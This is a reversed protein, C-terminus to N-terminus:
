AFPRALSDELYATNELRAYVYVHRTRTDMWRRTAAKVLDGISIM